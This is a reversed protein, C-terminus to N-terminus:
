KGGRKQKIIEALQEASFKPEAAKRGAGPTRVRKKNAEAYEPSVAIGQEIVYDNTAVMSEDQLSVDTGVVFVSVDTTGDKKNVTKGAVKVNTAGFISVAETAEDKALAITNKGDTVVYGYPKGYLSITEKNDKTINKKAAQKGRLITKVVTLEGAFAKGLVFEKAM